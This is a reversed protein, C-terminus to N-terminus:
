EYQFESSGDLPISIINDVMYNSKLYQAGDVGKVNPNGPYSVFIVLYANGTDKINDPLSFDFDLDIASNQEIVFSDGMIDTINERVINNHEYNDGGNNQPYIIGSEMVFVNIKFDKVEKAAVSVKLSVEKGQTNASAALATFAPYSEVAERALGAIVDKTKVTDVFNIIKAAGNFIGTPYSSIRFTNEFTKTGEWSLGGESTESHCNVPIIRNKEEDMAAEFARGMIPCFGCWTATFRMGMSRKYFPRSFDIGKSYMQTVTIEETDEESSITLIADRSEEENIDIHLNLSYKRVNSKTMGDSLIRGSELTDVSVVKIWSADSKVNIPTNGNVAIKYDGGNASAYINEQEAEIDKEGRQIVFFEETRGNCEISFRGEKELYSDNAQTASVTITIQGSEGNEPSISFWTEGNIVKWDGDFDMTLASAAGEEPKEILFTETEGNGKGSNHDPGNKECSFVPMILLVSIVLSLISQRNM